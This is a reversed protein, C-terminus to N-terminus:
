PLAPRCTQVCPAWRHRAALTGLPLLVAWAAAMLAAHVFVFCIRNYAGVDSAAGTALNLTLAGRGEHVASLDTVGDSAAAWVLSLTSSADLSASVAAAPAVLPRSFCLTTVTTHSGDASTFTEQVLGRSVAWSPTLYNNANIFDYGGQPINYTQVQPKPLPPQM